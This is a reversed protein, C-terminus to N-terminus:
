KTRARSRPKAATEATKAPAPASQPAEFPEACDKMAELEAADAEFVDGAQLWEGRHNLWCKARAKM